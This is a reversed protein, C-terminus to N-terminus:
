IYEIIYYLLFTLRQIYNNNDIIFCHRDFINYSDPPEFHNYIKSIIEEPIRQIGERNNNRELCHEISTKIHITLLSISLDRLLVYIERRMSKLYMIDDIIILNPNKMLITNNDISNALINSKESQIHYSLNDVAQKRITKFSNEDWDKYILM